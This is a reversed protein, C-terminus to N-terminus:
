VHVNPCATSVLNNVTAAQSLTTFDDVEIVNEHTPRSAWREIDSIPAGATVPVWILRARERVRRSQMATNSRRLPRGDTIVYVVSQADQRGNSLENLALALAGSTFTTSQPFTLAGIASAIGASDTSLHSAWQLGCVTEMNPPTQGQTIQGTCSRFDSWYRPGGFVLVAVKAGTDEDKWYANALALGAAKVATWGETGLSGSGDLLIIVDQKVGHGSSGCLLPTDPSTGFPICPQTNCEEYRTREPAWSEPCSGQGVAPSSVHRVSESMGGDCEKSCPGWAAWDNLECDRDCSQMNCPEAETTAGCREGGHQPPTAVSRSREQM